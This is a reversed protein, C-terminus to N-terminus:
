ESFDTPVPESWSRDANDWCLWPTSPDPVTEFAGGQMEVLTFCEQEYGNTVRDDETPAEHQRSWDIPNILGSASYATFETNITEIVAAQDFDPGAARLGEVLLDANIWGIMTQEAVPGGHADVWENFRDLADIGTAELPTFQPSVYDGDLLAGAEAVFEANYSNPHQMTVQDRYSQREFEQAITKMANLDLCSTVFDVGADIMETVQPGVGNPLGFELEDNVYIYRHDDTLWGQHIYATNPMRAQTVIRPNEKDTVDGITVATESYGYGLAAVKTGGALQVQYPVYRSTCTACLAALHGYVADRGAMEPAAIGWVFTPVGAEDLRGWAAGLTAAFAAFSDENAILELSKDQHNFLEDDLVEGVALQRGHVGGDANVMDFYAEIGTVYCDLICTGLPNNSKTGIVGVSIEEDSVGPVGEIPVFEAAEDESTEDETAEGDPSEDDAAPDEADDDPADPSEDETDTTSGADDDDDGSNGCAAGILTFALLVALLGRVGQSM